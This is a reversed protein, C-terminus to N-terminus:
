ISYMSRIYYFYLAVLPIMVSFLLDRKLGLINYLYECYVINLLEEQRDQDVIYKISGTSFDSCRRLRSYVYTMSFDEFNWKVIPYINGQVITYSQYEVIHCQILAM